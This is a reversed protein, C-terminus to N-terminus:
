REIRYSGIDDGEKIFVFQFLQNDGCRFSGACCLLYYDWMRCFREGYLKKAVHRNRQFNKYWAMLTKDYYPGFNHFDLQKFLNRTAADVQEMSPLMSHPFIYRDIWADTNTVSTLGGITHLLFIGKTELVDYVREM